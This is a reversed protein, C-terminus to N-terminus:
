PCVTAPRTLVTADCVVTGVTVGNLTARTGFRLDVDVGTNSQITSAGPPISVLTVVGAGDALLGTGNNRITLPGGVIQAGSGGELQFGVGNGELLFAAGPFPSANTIYSNQGLWIGIGNNAARITIPSGFLEITADLAIIGAAFHNNVTLTSAPSSPFLLTSMNSGGGIVLGAGGNDTVQVNAGRLELMSQAFVNVGAGPNQIIVITGRLIVTAGTYLDLGVATPSGGGNRQITSDTLDATSGGTVALGTHANDQVTTNRVAFTAARLGLIGEGPGNRVTLGKITVGRAGDVTVVGSLEILGGGGGDIAASGQGDLTIRDTTITVREHCTGSVLLTDGARAKQLAKTLTQGKECHVRKVDEDAFAPSTTVAMALVLMALSRGTKM